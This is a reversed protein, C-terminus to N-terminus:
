RPKIMWVNTCGDTMVVVMMAKHELEVKYLTMVKTLKTMDSNERQDKILQLKREKAETFKFINDYVWETSGNSDIM